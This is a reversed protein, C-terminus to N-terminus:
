PISDMMQTVFGALEDVQDDAVGCKAKLAARIEANLAQPRPPDVTQASARGQGSVGLGVFAQGASQQSNSRANKRGM